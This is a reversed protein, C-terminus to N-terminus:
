GDLGLGYQAHITRTPGDGPIIVIFFDDYEEETIPPVAAGGLAGVILPVTNSHNVVVVTEGRHNQLVDDALEQPYTKLNAGSVDMTTIPVGHHEALPAVTDQTRKFQSSYIASVAADGVAEMLAQARQQGKETLGPDSGQDAAKEAHRIVIVVIPEDAEQAFVSSPGALLLCLAFLSFRLYRM